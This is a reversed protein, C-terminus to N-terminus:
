RPPLGLRALDAEAAIFGFANWQPGALVRRFIEVAREREGHYFYWNGVGYGHTAVEVPDDSAAALLSEPTREGKYMMLRDHYATNELIRMGEHIPTLAARAEPDRGLRRLTMYLWDTTACLMDDNTSFKLCEVYCRRANEFDGKLYYALGLHYWVNLHLTSTPIDYKNPLGDPEIEDPRDHILTV